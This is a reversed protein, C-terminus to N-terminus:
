PREEPRRSRLMPLARGGAMGLWVAAFGAASSSVVYVAAMPARGDKVLLAGEVMFTSMTTYAGLFGIAVFPRAYRSPPFRELILVIVVGLALSGSVNTWFTSWPFTDKAVHVVRSVAYRAPAGLAGGIAIAALVGVSGTRASGRGRREPAPAGPALDPDLPM